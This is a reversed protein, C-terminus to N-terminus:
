IINVRMENVFNKFGKKQYSKITDSNDEYVKLSVCNIKQNKFWDILNDIIMGGVDKSCFYKEVFMLGIYGIKDYVSWEVDKIIEGFGCGVIVSDVEAVLFRANKSKILARVDYYEKVGKKITPDVVSEFNILKCQLINIKDLDSLTAQRIKIDM